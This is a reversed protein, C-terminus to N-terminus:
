GPLMGEKSAGVVVLGGLWAFRQYPHASKRSTCDNSFSEYPRALIVLHLIENPWMVNRLWSCLRRVLAM